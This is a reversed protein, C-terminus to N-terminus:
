TERVAMEVDAWVAYHDSPVVGNIAETGALGSATSQFGPGFLVYDLRRNPFKAGTAHPNSEAWTWGAGECPDWADALGADTILELEPSEPTVNFDGALITNPHSCALDALRNAQALRDEDPEDVHSIHATVIHVPGSPTDATALVYTRYSPTGDANPLRTVKINTLPWRSVIANSFAREMPSDLRSRFRLSPPAVYAFGLTQALDLVQSRTGGDPDREGWSEQICLIDPNVEKAVHRIGRQRQEWPGFQWWLNWTM